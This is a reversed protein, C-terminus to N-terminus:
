NFGTTWTVYCATTSRRYITYVSRNTTAGNAPSFYTTGCGSFTYTRATTDEVIVNYVGGAVMNSVTITSGGVASFVIANGNSFDATGGSAVVFEKSVIQGQVELKATPATTGVGVSGDSTIRMTETGSANFTTLNAGTAHTSGYLKIFAGTTSAVGGSINLSQDDVNRRLAFGSGSNGVIM